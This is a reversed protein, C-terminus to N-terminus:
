GYAIALGEFKAVVIECLAKNILERVDKDKQALWMTLENIEITIYGVSSAPAKSHSVLSIKQLDVRDRELRRCRELVPGMRTYIRQQEDQRILRERHMARAVFPRKITRKVFCIDENIRRKGIRILENLILKLM